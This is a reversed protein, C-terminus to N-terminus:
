TENTEVCFEEGIEEDIFEIFSSFETVTLTFNDLYPIDTEIKIEGRFIFSLAELDEYRELLSQALEIHEHDKKSLVYKVEGLITGRTFTVTKASNYTQKM